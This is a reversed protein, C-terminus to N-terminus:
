REVATALMFRLETLNAEVGCVRDTVAAEEQETLKWDSSNSNSNGSKSRQRLVASVADTAGTKLNKDSRLWFHSRLPLPLRVPLSLSRRGCRQTGDPLHESMATVQMEAIYRRVAFIYLAHQARYM